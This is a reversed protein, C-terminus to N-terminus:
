QLPEPTVAIIASISLERISMMYHRLFSNENQLSKRDELYMRKWQDREKELQLAYECIRKIEPADRYDIHPNDVDEVQELMFGINPTNM